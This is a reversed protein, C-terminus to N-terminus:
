VRGRSFGGQRMRHGLVSRDGLGGHRRARAAQYRQPTMAPAVAPRYPGGGRAAHKQNLLSEISLWVSRVFADSVDDHAGRKQPAEVLVINKSVQKAQLTLLETIFPSHKVGGELAREPIPYDYLVIRSDYIFMKAAQYIKSTMDRTFFEASFQKLGRKHLNQELPIGNWRDFLGKTILFRKCLKAVWETIEDFDLREVTGLGKAYDTSFQGHLHPNAERWDMGAYWVEHYDLVINQGEVHTVAVATGDGVLGVDIGMQHPTKPRAM